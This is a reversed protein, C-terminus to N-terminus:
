FPVEDGEAGDAGPEAPFFDPAKTDVEFVHYAHPKDGKGPRTGLYIVRILQGPDVASLRRALVTPMAFRQATGDPLDLTGVPGYQGDQAGRYLGVLETGVPMKTWTIFRTRDPADDPDSVRRWGTDTADTKVGPTGHAYHESNGTTGM